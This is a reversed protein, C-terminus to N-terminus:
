KFATEDYLDFNLSVFNLNYEHRQLFTWVRESQAKSLLNRFKFRLRSVPQVKSQWIKTLTTVLTDFVEEFKPAHRKDM